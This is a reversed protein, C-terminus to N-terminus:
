REKLTRVYALVAKVSEHPLLHQVAPQGIRVAEMNRRGQTVVEILEEDSKAQVYGSNLRPIKLGFFEDAARIGQGEGGHCKKCTQEYVTKGSVSPNHRSSVVVVVQDQKGPNPSVLLGGEQPLWVESLVRTKEASHFVLTGERFVADPGKLRSIIQLNAAGGAGSIQLFHAGPKLSIRYSGAPLLSGGAMFPHGIAVNLVPQPQAGVTSAAALACFLLMSLRKTTMSLNKGTKSIAPVEM